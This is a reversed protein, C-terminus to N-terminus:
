YEDTKYRFAHCIAIGLADSADLPSITETVQLINQVMKQVQEKSAGGFGTIAQKVERPSYYSVPLEAIAASVVAAGRAHGLQIASKVNHGYFIDEFAVCDPNYQNLLDQVRIYIEKLRCTFDSKAKLRICGYEVLRVEEDFDVIGYGTVVSGPDIGMVRM